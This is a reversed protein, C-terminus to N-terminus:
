QYLVVMIRTNHPLMSLILWIEQQAALTVWLITIFALLAFVPNDKGMGEERVYVSM